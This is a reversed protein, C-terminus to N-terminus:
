EPISTSFIRMLLLDLSELLYRSTHNQSVKSREAHVMLADFANRTENMGRIDRSDFQNKFENGVEYIAPFDQRVYSLLTLFKLTDNLEDMEMIRRVDEFTSRSDTFRRRMHDSDFTHAIMTRLHVFEQHFESSRTNDFSITEEVSSLKNNLDSIASIVEALSRQGPDDSQRLPQLDLSLSIPTEVEFDGTELSRVQDQINQKAEEVSDLDQHDFKITRQAHVDFPLEENAAIIQVFPRRLAHRVALEYFVNPNVETLDALVLDDEVVHQMVQSTIVGPEAIEDARKASYGLPGLSPKIVHRLIQDSRRRTDTDPEGIPAIVFCTKTATETM